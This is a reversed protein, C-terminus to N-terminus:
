NKPEILLPDRGVMISLIGNTATATNETFNGKADPVMNTVIAKPASWPLNLPSAADDSWAIFFTQGDARRRFEIVRVTGTPNGRPGILESKDTETAAILRKYAYYAIRERGVDAPRDGSDTGSSIIGMFNFLNQPDGSFNSWSVLNVLLIRAAGLARNIVLSKVMVRAQDALTRSHVIGRPTHAYFGAEGMWVEADAYGNADLLQRLVGVAPSIYDEGEPYFHTDVANFWDGDKLLPVIKKINGQTDGLVIRAEPDAERIAQATLKVLKVYEDVTLNGTDLNGFPENMVQWYKVRVYPDADAVGDGDYREVAARVFTQWEAERGYPYSKQLEVPTGKVRAPDLVLLMDMKKGPAPAYTARVVSDTKAENNWDYGDGLVPEVMAWILLVNTRTFRINLKAVHRDVFDWYDSLSFGMAARFQQYEDGYLQFLGYAPTPHSDNSTNDITTKSSLVCQPPMQCGKDSKEGPTVTGGQKQCNEYFSAAPPIYQPCQYTENDEPPVPKQFIFFAGIGIMALGLVVLGLIIKKM